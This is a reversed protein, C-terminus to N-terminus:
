GEILIENLLRKLSDIGTIFGNDPGLHVLSNSCSSGFTTHAFDIMRVDVRPLNKAVWKEDLTQPQWRPICGQNSLDMDSSAEESSETYQSCDSYMMCSDVSMPSSSFLARHQASCSSSQIPPSDLFVTDESIPVFGISRPTVSEEDDGHSDDSHSLCDSSNSAEHEFYTSRVHNDTLGNSLPPPRMHLSSSSSDPKVKTYPQLTTPAANHFFRYLTGKFGEENLERGFYKDEKIFKDQDAQYVQMGCLRVGLSASTSAACKAMQKSKKEASADDGHQRTGMKLDLVCPKVYHSTINELMLFSQKVTNDIQSSSVVPASVSNNRRVKLRYPYDRKRKSSSGGNDLDRFSPSYKGDIRLGSSNAAQMVGKFKPIFREIEAPTNKYFNLERPNLPKCITSEDDLVLLRTHGGVQSTLPLLSVEDGQDPQPAAVATGSSSVDRRLSAGSANSTALGVSRVASTTAHSAYKSSASDVSEGMGWDPLLFVMGAAAAVGRFYVQSSTRPVIKNLLLKSSIIEVETHNSTKNQLLFIKWFSYIWVFYVLSEFYCNKLPRDVIDCSIQSTQLLPRWAFSTFNRM